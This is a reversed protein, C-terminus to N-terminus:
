ITEVESVGPLLTLDHILNTLRQENDIEVTIISEFNFDFIDFTIGKIQAGDYNNIVGSINGLMAADEAGTVRVDATITQKPRDFSLFPLASGLTQAARQKKGNTKTEVIRIAEREMEKQVSEQAQKFGNKLKYRIFQYAKNLDVREKGMAIFFDAQNEFRLSGILNNFESDSLVFGQEQAAKQWLLKGQEEIEREEEKLFKTIYGNAKSTIVYNLWEKCPKQNKSTLIEVQDGSTLKYDIPAIKGNVKAGIYRQGIESHIEFAFDLPTSDKPLTRFENTPTFVFIEDAFVNKRVNELLAYDNEERANEFIERVLGMWQLINDDELISQAAVKGSKYRFHAAVGEESFEHMKLTRIQVEVVRKDPGVVATHLSQYGNKKPASIYDKFTDPVPPFVSAIMGYVYFCFNPDDTDLILRVAFLDYLEDISKQRLRMKNFISYIHKPRGNIEVKIKNRKIFEDRSLKEHLPAALREIYEEREERTYRLANRIEDYAQRNLHKFSLDELEWKMNRLGFRNAFPAYIDLTEQATRIRSAEPLYDLTRLNHLRDALKILIIRVDKFLSLLLKRYNELQDARDMRQSEIHEIKSIGDVIDAVSSGFESQIDKYSFRDGDTADHLLAAVVSTDDLPIEKLAIRAVELPHTYSPDGSKRIRNVHADRCVYFAKRILAENHAPLYKGCEVLLAELDREVDEGTKYNTLDLKEAGRRLNLM